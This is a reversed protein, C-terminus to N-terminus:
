VEGDLRLQEFLLKVVPWEQDWFTSAAKFSMVYLTDTKMNAILLNFTQTSNDANNRHTGTIARSIFNGNKRQWTDLVRSSNYLNEIFMNMHEEASIGTKVKSQQLVNIQIRPAIPQKHRQKTIVFRKSNGNNFREFKWSDPVLFACTITECAEWHYGKPGRTAHASQCQFFVAAVILVGIIRKCIM